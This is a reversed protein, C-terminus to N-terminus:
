CARHEELLDPVLCGEPFVKGLLTNMHLCNRPFANSLSPHVQQNALSIGVTEFFQEVYSIIAGFVTPSRPGGAEQLLMSTLDSCKQKPKQPSVM